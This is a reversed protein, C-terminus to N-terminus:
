DNPPEEFYFNPYFALTLAYPFTEPTGPPCEAASFDQMLADLRAQFETVKSEPIRGTLRNIILRRPQQPAGQELQFYRAQLSRLIDDRTTDFTSILTENVASKGEDTTTTLLGPALEFSNSVARYSKEVLNSVLRTEAVEILGHKELLNFHYYLKSVALGLKGAVQKITQPADILVELIQSRLPDALVKLTERDQIIHPIKDTM